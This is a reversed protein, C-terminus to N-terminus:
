FRTSTTFTIPSYSRKGDKFQTAELLFEIRDKAVWGFGVGGSPSLGSDSFHKSGSLTNNPGLVVEEGRDSWRSMGAKVQIFSSGVLKYNYFGSLTTARFHYDLDRGLFGSSHAWDSSIELGFGSDFQYSFLARGGYITSDGQTSSERSFDNSHFSDVAVGGGVRFHKVDVDDAHGYSALLLFPFGIVFINKM